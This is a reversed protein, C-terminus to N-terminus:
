AEEIRRRDLVRESRGHVFHREMRRSRRERGVAHGDEIKRIAVVVAAGTVALVRAHEEIWGGVAFVLHPDAVGAPLAALQEGIAERYAQWPLGEQDLGVGGFRTYPFTSRKRDVHGGRANVTEVPRNM